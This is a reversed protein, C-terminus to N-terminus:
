RDIEYESQEYESDATVLEESKNLMKAINKQTTLNIGHIQEYFGNACEQINFEIVKECEEYLKKYEKKQKLLDRTYFEINYREAPKVEVDLNGLYYNNLSIKENLSAIEVAIREKCDYVMEIEDFYDLMYEFLHREVEFVSYFHKELIYKYLVMKSRYPANLQTALNKIAFTLETQINTSVNNLEAFLEKRAEKVSTAYYEDSSGNIKKSSEGSPLKDSTQKLEDTVVPFFSDKNGINPCVSIFEDMEAIDASLKEKLEHMVVVQHEIASLCNYIRKKREELVKIHDSIKDLDNKQPLDLLQETREEVM